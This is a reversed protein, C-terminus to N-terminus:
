FAPHTKVQMLKSLGYAIVQLLLDLLRHGQECLLRTHLSFAYPFTRGSYLVCSLARGHETESIFLQIHSRYQTIIDIDNIRGTRRPIWNELMALEAVHINVTRRANALSSMRSSSATGLHLCVRGEVHHCFTTEIWLGRYGHVLSGRIWVVSQWWTPYGPKDEDQRASATHWRKCSYTKSKKGRILSQLNRDKQADGSTSNHLISTLLNKFTAWHNFSVRFLPIELQPIKLGAM